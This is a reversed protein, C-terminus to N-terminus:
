QLAQRLWDSYDANINSISIHAICPTKYSGIQRIIKEAKSVKSPVTKIIMVAEETKTLSHNETDRYVSQIPFINVCGAARAELLVSAIREGEETDKCTVYLFIM